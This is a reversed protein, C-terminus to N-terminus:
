DQPALEGDVLHWRRDCAAAVRPDHTVVVVAREPGVAGRLLDVVDRTRDQDLAGTPEDALVLPPENILARAVAVRQKEGGSLRYGREGVM